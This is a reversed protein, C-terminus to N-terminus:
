DPILGDDEAAASTRALERLKGLNSEGNTSRDRCLEAVANMLLTLQAKSKARESADDSTLWFWIRVLEEGVAGFSDYLIEKTGEREIESAVFRLMKLRKVAEPGSPAEAQLRDREKVAQSM